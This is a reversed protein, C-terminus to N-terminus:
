RLKSGAVLDRNGAPADGSTAPAQQGATAPAGPQEATRQVPIDASQV